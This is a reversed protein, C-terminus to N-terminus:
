RLANANSLNKVALKAVAGVWAATSVLVALIARDRLSVPDSVDISGLLTRAQEPGIEPTKGEM